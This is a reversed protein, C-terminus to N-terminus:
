AGSTAGRIRPSSRAPPRLRRVFARGRVDDPLGHPVVIHPDYRPLFPAYTDAQYRSLLIPIPRYLRMRWIKKYHKLQSVPWLVWIARRKPNRVFGIPEPQHAAVYADCSEPPTSGFRCALFVRM